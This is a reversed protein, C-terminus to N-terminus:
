NKIEKQLIFIGRTLDRTYCMVNYTDRPLAIGRTLTV